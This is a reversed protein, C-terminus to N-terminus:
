LEKRVTSYPPPAYNNLGTAESTDTKESKPAFPWWAM